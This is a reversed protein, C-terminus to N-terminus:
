RILSRVVTVEVTHRDTSTTNNIEAIELRHNLVYYLNCTCM